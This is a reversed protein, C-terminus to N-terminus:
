NPNGRIDTTLEQYVMISITKLNDIITQYTFEEDVKTCNLEKYIYIKTNGLSYDDVDKNEDIMNSIKDLLMNYKCVNNSTWYLFYCIVIALIVMTSKM